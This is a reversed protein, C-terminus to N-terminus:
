RQHRVANGYAKHIRAYGSVSDSDAVHTRPTCYVKPPPPRMISCYQMPRPGPTPQSQHPM